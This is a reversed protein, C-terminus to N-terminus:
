YICFYRIFWYSKCTVTFKQKIRGSYSPAERGEGKEDGERGEAKLSSVSEVNNSDPSAEPKGEFLRTGWLLNALRIPPHWSWMWMFFIVLHDGGWRKWIRRRRLGEAEYGLPQLCNSRKYVIWLFLIRVFTKKLYGKWIVVSM